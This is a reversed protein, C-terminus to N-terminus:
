TDHWESDKSSNEILIIIFTFPVTKSSYSDTSACSNAQTPPQACVNSTINQPEIAQHKSQTQRNHFNILPILALEEHTTCEHASELSAQIQPNFDVPLVSSLPSSQHDTQPTQQLNQLPLSDTTKLLRSDPLNTIITPSPHNTNMLVTHDTTLGSPFEGGLETAVIRMGRSLNVVLNSLSQHRNIAWASAPHAWDIMWGLCGLWSPRQKATCVNPLPLPLSRCVNVTEKSIEAMSSNCHVNDSAWGLAQCFGHHVADDWALIEDALASM